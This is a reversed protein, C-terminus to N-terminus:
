TELEIETLIRQLNNIVDPSQNNGMRRLFATTEEATSKLASCADEDNPNERHHKVVQLIKQALRLAEGLAYWSVLRHSDILAKRLDDYM